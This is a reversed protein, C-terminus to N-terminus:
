SKSTMKDLDWIDTFEGIYYSAKAFFFALFLHPFIGSMTMIVLGYGTKDLNWICIWLLAIFRFISIFFNGFSISICTFKTQKSKNFHNKFILFICSCISYLLMLTGGVLDFDLYSPTKFRIPGNSFDVFSSIFVQPVSIVYNFLLANMLWNWIFKKIIKKM